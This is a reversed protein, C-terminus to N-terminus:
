IGFLQCANKYFIKDQESEDLNIENFHKKWINIIEEYRCIPEDLGWLTQSIPIDRKIYGGDAIERLSINSGSIDFFINGSGYVSANAIACAIDYMAYGLHAGIIKLKPFRLGISELLIPVM